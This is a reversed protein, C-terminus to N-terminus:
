KLVRELDAIASILLGTEAVEGGGWATGISAGDIRWVNARWAYGVSGSERLANTGPVCSHKDM